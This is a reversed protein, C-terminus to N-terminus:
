RREEWRDGEGEEPLIKMLATVTALVYDTFEHDTLDRRAGWLDFPRLILRDLEEALELQQGHSLDDPCGEVYRRWL